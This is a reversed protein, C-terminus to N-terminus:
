ILQMVTDTIGSMNMSFGVGTLAMVRATAKLSEGALINYILMGFGVPFSLVMLTASMVYVALQEPIAVPEKPAEFKVSEIEILDSAFISRRSRRLNDDNPAIDPLRKAARNAENEEAASRAFAGADIMEPRPTSVPRSIPRRPRATAAKPQAEAAAARPPTRSQVPPIQVTPTEVEDAIFVSDTHHWYVFDADEERLLHRVVHYCAAVLVRPAVSGGTQGPRGPGNGAEICLTEAFEMDDLGTDTRASSGAARRLAGVTVPASGRSIRLHMKDSSFLVERDGDAETHDFELAINRFPRKLGDVMGDFDFDQPVTFLITAAASTLQDSM